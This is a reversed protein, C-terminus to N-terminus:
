KNSDTAVLKNLAYAIRKKKRNARQKPIIGQSAAKDYAKCVNKAEHQTKEVDKEDLTKTFSKFLTKLSSKVQQNREHKKKNSRMRKIASKTIPM